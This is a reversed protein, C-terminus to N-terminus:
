SWISIRDLAAGVVCLLGPSPVVSLLLSGLLDDSRGATPSTLMELGRGLGIGLGIGPVLGYQLDCLTLVAPSDHKPVCVCM